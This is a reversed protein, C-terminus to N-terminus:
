RPQRRQSRWVSEFSTQWPKPPSTRLTTMSRRHCIRRRYLTASMQSRKHSRMSRHQRRDTHTSQPPMCRSKRCSPLLRTRMSNRPLLTESLRSSHTKPHSLNPKRSCLNSRWPRHKSTWWWRNKTSPFQLQSPRSLNPHSPSPHCSSPETGKEWSSPNALDAPPRLHNSSRRAVGLTKEWRRSRRSRLVTPTTITSGTTERSSTTQTTGWRGERSLILIQWLTHFRSPDRPRHGFALSCSSLRTRSALCSTKSNTRQASSSTPPRPSTTQLSCTRRCSPWCGQPSRSASVGM